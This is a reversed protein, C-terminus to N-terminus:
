RMPRLTFPRELLVGLVYQAMEVDGSVWVALAAEGTTDVLAPCALGHQLLVRGTQRAVAMGSDILEFQGGFLRTISPKLFPYHTCGLVLQDAGAAALPSLIQLLEAACEASNQRGQEVFPVLKPSVATLVQVGAPTAVDRIVDHLLTGRLTGVTALVGIVGTKTAAVAPKVAPVLGIIPFGAGYHERLATLSFASATNCAVVVAKCGAGHLWAVAHATLQRIDDDSRCGYPVHATDAFYYFSEHPLHAQLDQVVSLGGMGSDFVGIPADRRDNM